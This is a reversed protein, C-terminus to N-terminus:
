EHIYLKKLKEDIKNLSESSLKIGTLVNSNNRPDFIRIKSITTIQGVLAISGEKMKDIEKGISKLYEVQKKHYELSKVMDECSSNYINLLERAKTEVPLDKKGIYSNLEKIKDDIDKLEKENLEVDKIKNILCVVLSIEDRIKNFRKIQNELEEGGKKFLKEHKEHLKMYIENGLEVDYDTIRCNSGKMSTLPIINLIKSSMANSKNLVIAYHLGGEESGVNYGLGVKIVDGREYRKLKKPNFTEEFKLYRFYDEMWYSLKSIKEQEGKADLYNLYDSMSEIAIEKANKRISSVIIVKIM